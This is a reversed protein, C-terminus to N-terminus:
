LEKIEILDEIRNVVNEITRDTYDITIAGFKCSNVCLGCGKCIDNDITIKDNEFSIANFMCVDDLCKKCKKCNEEHLEVNVGDLKELKDSIDSDM